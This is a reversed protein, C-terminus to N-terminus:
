PRRRVVAGDGNQFLVAWRGGPPEARYVVAYEADEIREPRARDVWSLPVVVRGALVYQARFYAYSYGGSWDLTPFVIAVRAGPPIREGASRLLELYGPARRDPFAELFRAWGARDAVFFRVYFPKLGFGVLAALLLAAIALRARAGRSTEDAM